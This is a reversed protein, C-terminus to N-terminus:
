VIMSFTSSIFGHVTTASLPLSTCRQLPSARESARSEYFTQLLCNLAEAITRRRERESPLYNSPHTHSHSLHLSRSRQSVGAGSSGRGCKRRTVYNMDQCAIAQTFIRWWRVGATVMAKGGNM